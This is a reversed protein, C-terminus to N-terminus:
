ADSSNLAELEKYKVEEKQQVVVQGKTNLIAIHIKNAYGALLGGIFPCFLYARWYASPDNDIQFDNASNVRQTDHAFIVAIIAAPNVGGGLLHSCGVFAYLAGAIVACNIFGINAPSHGPTKVMLIIFVFLFTALVITLGVQLARGEADCDGTVPNVPCVTPMWAEPIRTTPHVQKWAMNSSGLADMCLAVGIFAGVFQMLIIKILFSTNESKGERIYVGLSVAPNMHGGSVPGLVQLMCFFTFVVGILDGGSMIISYTLIATGAM